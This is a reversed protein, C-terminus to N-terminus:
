LHRGEGGARCRFTILFIFLNKVNQQRLIEFTTFNSREPQDIALKVAKQLM